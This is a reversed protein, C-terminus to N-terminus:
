RCAARRACASSASRRMTPAPQARDPPLHEEDVVPYLEARGTRAAAAPGVDATPDILLGQMRRAHEARAPDAHAVAVRELGRDTFVDVMCWDALDPVALWAVRRLTEEYDLSGALM